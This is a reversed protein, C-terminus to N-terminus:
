KKELHGELIALIHDKKFNHIENKDTEFTMWAGTELDKRQKGNFNFNVGGTLLITLEKVNTEKITETYM